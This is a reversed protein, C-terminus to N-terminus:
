VNTAKTAKNGGHATDDPQPDAYHQTEDFIKARPRILREPFIKFAEGRKSELFHITTFVILSFLPAVLSDVGTFDKFRKQECTTKSLSIDGSGSMTDCRSDLSRSLIQLDDSQSIALAAGGEGM